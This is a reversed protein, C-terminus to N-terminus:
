TWRKCLLQLLSLICLYFSFLISIRCFRSFWLLSSFVSPYPLSLENLFVSLFIFFPASVCSCLLSSVLLLLYFSLQRLDLLLLLPLLLSLHYSGLVCFKLVVLHYIQFIQVGGGGTLFLSPFTIVVSFSCLSLHLCCEWSTNFRGSGSSGASGVGESIVRSMSVPGGVAPSTLSAIRAM